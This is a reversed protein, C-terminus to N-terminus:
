ESHISKITFRPIRNEDTGFSSGLVYRKILESNKHLMPNLLETILRVMSLIELAEGSMMATDGNERKPSTLYLLIPLFFM